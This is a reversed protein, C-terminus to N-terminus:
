WVQISDAAFVKELLAEYDPEPKTLDVVAVRCDPLERQHSIIERALTDSENTIIHLLIPMALLPGRLHM